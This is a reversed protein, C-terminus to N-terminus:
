VRECSPPRLRQTADVSHSPNLGDKPYYAVEGVSASAYFLDLFLGRPAAHLGLAPAHRALSSSAERCFRVPGKEHRPTGRLDALARPSRAFGAVPGWVMGRVAFRARCPRLGIEGASGSRALESRVNLDASM